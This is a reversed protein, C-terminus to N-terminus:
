VARGPFYRCRRCARWGTAEDDDDLLPDHERRIVPELPKLEWMGDRHCLGMWFLGQESEMEDHHFLGQTLVSYEVGQVMLAVLLILKM